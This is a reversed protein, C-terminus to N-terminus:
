GRLEVSPFGCTLCYASKDSMNKKCESCKIIVYDGKNM